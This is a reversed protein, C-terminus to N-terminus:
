NIYIENYQNLYDKVRTFQNNNAKIKLNSKLKDYGYKDLINGFSSNLFSSTLSMDSNIELLLIKNNKFHTDLVCYLKVGESNSDTNDVISNLKIEILNNRNM